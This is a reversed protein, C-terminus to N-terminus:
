EEGCLTLCIVVTGEEAQVEQQVSKETPGSGGTGEVIHVTKRPM